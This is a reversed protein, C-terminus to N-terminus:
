GKGRARARRVLLVLAALAVVAVGIALYAPWLRRGSEKVANSATTSTITSSTATGTSIATTTPSVVTTSSALPPETTPLAATVTMLDEFTEFEPAPESGFGIESIYTDNGASGSYIELTDFRVWTTEASVAFRQLSPEDKLVLVTETGDSFTARLTKPRGYRSFSDLGDNRGPLICIERLSETQGFTVKTWAGAGPAPAGWGIGPSGDFAEWGAPYQIETAVRGSGEVATLRPDAWGLGLEEDYRPQPMTFALTIDDQTTPELDEFVWQYTHDDLKVYSEPRTTLSAEEFGKIEAAKVDLAWGAFDDALSYRVVAKGITDRWGAGSHLLYDYNGCVGWAGLSAPAKESFRAAGVASVGSLYSVTIMTEGRPFTAEHLYYTVESGPYAPDEGIGVRVALPTGNQWARFAVLSQQDSYSSDIFPFGLQLTQPEGSNVFRFDARYEAFRGFCVAQVTEAEMRIDTNAMPHVAGGTVYVSGDDALAPVVPLFLLAAAVLAAVGLAIGLVTITALRRRGVLITKGPRVRTIGATTQEM